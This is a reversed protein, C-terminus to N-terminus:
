KNFIRSYLNENKSIQYELLEFEEISDVETVVETKFGYVQNGHIQNSHEIFSSRLIDVYGNSSYSVPYLQRAGSAKEVDYDKYFTRVLRNNELEFTKYATEPMLHISRLATSQTDNKFYQIADEIVEPDRLPTTVRLHVILDPKAIQNLGLWNLFHKMCELDTSTDNSIEKPRLFPAEAGLSIALKQYEVSDTSVFVKSISPTKLAAQITYELLPRGSLKKINKNIVSKSGSRAPVVAYITPTNKPIEFQKASNSQILLEYLERVIGDGGKTNLKYKAMRYIIPHSDSPAATQEIMQFCSEDNMENGVYFVDNSDIKNEKLYKNLFDAKNNETQFVKLSLKQARAKVVPNLETTLIIQEIGQLKFQKIWWGDARNCRVSETGDQSVLVKNDTLVGDFDYVILKVM